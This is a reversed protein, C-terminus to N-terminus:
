AARTASSPRHRLEEELQDVMGLAHACALRLNLSPDGHAALAELRRAVERADGLLVTLTADDPREM